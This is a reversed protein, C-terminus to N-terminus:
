LKQFYISKGRVEVKWEPNAQAFQRCVSVAVVMSMGTCPPCFSFGNSNATRRTIFSLIKDKEKGLYEESVHHSPLSM